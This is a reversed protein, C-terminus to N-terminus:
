IPSNQPLSPWMPHYGIVGPIDFQPEGAEFNTEASVQKQLSDQHGEKPTTAELGLESELYKFWKQNEEIVKSQEAEEFCSSAQHDYSSLNELMNWFAFDSELPVQDLLVEGEKNHDLVVNEPKDMNIDCNFDRIDDFLLDFDEEQDDPSSLVEVLQSTNSANSDDYSSVSLCSTVQKLLPKKQDDQHPGKDYQGDSQHVLQSESSGLCPLKENTLVSNFSSSSSSSSSTISSEKSEQDCTKKSTSLRKKLHTNWVNKIENDTRGPLQSAIKSWRCIIYYNYLHYPLFRIIYM